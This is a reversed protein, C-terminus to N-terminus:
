RQRDVYSLLNRTSVIVSKVNVRALLELAKSLQGRGEDAKLHMVQDRGRVKINTYLEFPIEHEAAFKCIYAICSIEREMDVIRNGKRTINLVLVWTMGSTREFVKTQLEGTKASAKWHIRNFPDSSLYNRTGAPATVDEDLSYEVPRSGQWQTQIRELGLVVTLEPYVIMETHFLPNYSLHMEGLGFWDRIVLQVGRFKAVGRKVGKVGIRANQVSRRDLSFTFSYSNQKEGSSDLHLQPCEVAEELDFRFKGAFLPIHGYNAVPINFQDEDDVFMRVKQTDNVMEINESIKNFYFRTLLNMLCFFLVFLFLLLSGSYLSVIIFLASVAYLFNEFSLRTYRNWERIRDAKPKKRKLVKDLHLKRSDFDIVRM